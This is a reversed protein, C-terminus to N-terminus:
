SLAVGGLYRCLKQLSGSLRRGDRHLLDTQFISQIL